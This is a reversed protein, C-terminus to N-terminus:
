KKQALPSTTSVFTNSKTMHKLHSNHVKPSSSSSCSSADIGSSNNSIQTVATALQSTSSSHLSFSFHQKELGDEQSSMVSSTTAMVLSSGKKDPPPTSSQSVLVSFLRNSPRAKSAIADDSVSTQLPDSNRRILDFDRSTRKFALPPLTQSKHGICLPSTVSGQKSCHVLSDVEIETPLSGGKQLQHTGHLLRSPSLTSLCPQHRSSSCSVSPTPAHHSKKACTVPSSIPNHATTTPYARVSTQTSAESITSAHQKGNEDPQNGCTNHLTSVLVEESSLSESAGVENPAFVVSIPRRGTRSILGQSPKLSHKSDPVLDHKLSFGFDRKPDPKLSKSDPELDPKLQAAVRQISPLNSLSLITKLSSSCDDALIGGDVANNDSRTDNFTDKMVGGRRGRSLMPPPQAIEEEEEEKQVVEKEEEKAKMVNEVTIKPPISMVKMPTSTLIEKNVIVAPSDECAKSSVVDLVESPHLNSSHMQLLASSARKLATDCDEEVITSMFPVTTAGPTSPM